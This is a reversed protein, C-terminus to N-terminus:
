WPVGTGTTPTKSETIQDAVSKELATVQDAGLAEKAWAIANEETIDAYATFSSLNSTDLHEMGFARGTYTVADNGSGLKESDIVEWHVATVVDAKGDLSVQRDLSAISWTASM